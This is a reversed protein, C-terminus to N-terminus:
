RNGAQKIFSQLRSSMIKLQAELRQFRPDALWEEVVALAVRDHDALQSQSPTQVTSLLNNSLMFNASPYLGAFKELEAPQRREDLLYHELVARQKPDRVDARAFYGARTLERGSLLEPNAELQGLMRVPEALVLRDLTLFAAYAAPRDKNELRTAMRAFEPTLQIAKTHVAVDFAELWGISQEQQWRPERLLAGLRDQLYGIDQPSTQVRGFNRMAVAWEDASDPTALITRAM